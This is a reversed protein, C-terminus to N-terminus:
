SGGIFKRLKNVKRMAVKKFLVGISEPPQKIPPIISSILRQAETEDESTTFVEVLISQSGIEPSTFRDEVEHFEKQSSVGHYVLGLDEVYHRVLNRSQKGFHGAASVFRDASEGLCANRHKYTLFEAGKGNNILIIRLNRGVHRNGLVNMDYFFALDGMICYFLRDPYALSAGILSSLNGDIGFGGVNCASRVSPPLRFFNWSRLSNLIAFHITSNEPLRPALRSAVWINSLPLEPISQRLSTDLQHFKEAYDGSGDIQTDAYHEFFDVEAMEFIDTLARFADRLEGDQNVRWVRRPPMKFISYEGTVEGLHILLDPRYDDNIFGQQNTVLSTMLKRDGNYGSTHDGLLLAGTNDCFAEIASVLRPKFSPHSGIFVAIKGNPLVPMSEKTFHRRIVRVKPLDAVANFQGLSTPLNLHVPGPSPRYLELIAQNAKIQCEWEHMESRIIPLELSLKYTDVPMRSRDLVQAVLHGVKSTEQTATVALIPLKRYYAETLGPFYNRSATAGTCTIMVAEGTEHAIGCAMYAASREDVASYMNFSGDCDLSVVFSSNASGPSAVVHRIGHEKLLAILIQVNKEDTYAKM